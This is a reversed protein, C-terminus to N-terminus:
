HPATLSLLKRQAQGAEVRVLDPRDRAWRTIAQSAMYLSAPSDPSLGESDAARLLAEVTAADAATGRGEVHPRMLARVPAPRALEQMVERVTAGKEDCIVRGADAKAAKEATVRFADFAETAQQWRGLSKQIERMMRDSHRTHTILDAGTALCLTTLNLCQARRLGDWNRYSGQGDDRTFGGGQAAYVEGVVPPVDNMDQLTWSLQRGDPNYTAQIRAEPSEEM